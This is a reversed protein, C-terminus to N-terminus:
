PLMQYQGFLAALIEGGREIGKNQMLLPCPEITLPMFSGPSPRCALFPNLQSAVKKCISLSRSFSRISLSKLHYLLRSRQSKKIPTQDTPLPSVGRGWCQSLPPSKWFKLPPSQVNEAQLLSEHDYNSIKTFIHVVSLFNKFVRQFFQRM